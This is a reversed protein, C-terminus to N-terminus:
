THSRYDNIVCVLERVIGDDLDLNEGRTADDVGGGVVRIPILKNVGLDLLRQHM